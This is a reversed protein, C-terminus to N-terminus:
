KLETQVREVTISQVTLTKSPTVPTFLSGGSIDAWNSEFKM